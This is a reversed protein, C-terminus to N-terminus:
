IIVAPLLEGIIMLAFYTGIYSIDIPLSSLTESREILLRMPYLVPACIMDLLRIFPSDENVPLWSTIANVLLALKLFGILLHVTNVTAYLFYSM